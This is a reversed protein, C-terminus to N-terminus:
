EIRSLKGNVTQEQQRNRVTHVVSLSFLAVLVVAALALTPIAALLPVNFLAGGVLVVGLASLTGYWRDWRDQQHSDTDLYMMLLDANESLSILGRDQDYEVIGADDMKPLHTQYLAVYVRKRQDSSLANVSTDNEWAAIQEALEGLTVTEEAELLYALVERRRRNKLLEFIVDKSLREDDESDGVSSAIEDPLSTDISSM